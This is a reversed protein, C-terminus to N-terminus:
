VLHERKLLSWFIRVPLRCFVIIMFRDALTNHIAGGSANHSSNAQVLASSVFVLAKM